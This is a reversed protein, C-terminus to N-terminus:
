IAIGREDRQSKGIRLDPRNLIERWQRGRTSFSTSKKMNIGRLRNASDADIYVRESAIQHRHATVLEASGCSNAREVNAIRQLKSGRNEASRLLSPAARARRIQETRNCKARRCVSKRM